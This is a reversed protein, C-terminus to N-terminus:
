TELFFFRCGPRAVNATLNFNVAIAFYQVRPPTKRAMEFRCIMQNVKIIIQVVPFLVLLFFLASRMMNRLSFFVFVFATVFFGAGQCQPSLWSFLPFSLLFIPNVLRPGPKSAAVQTAAGMGSAREGAAAAV